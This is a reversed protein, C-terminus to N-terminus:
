ATETRSKKKKVNFAIASLAAGLVFGAGGSLALAGGTFDSGTTSVATDDSNFYVYVSTAENNWDYLSSNLNFAADTGFMHIGTEYGAPIQASGTVVKLSSALIPEMLDKKVAYLALWQRGVDGNMDSCIGLNKYMEDKANRNCEVAKYYASQNKLMIKEGKKNFGIIDKEDVMYHPIPTFEVNYYAKMDEWALYTTIGALIIVGIAFGVTLYKCVRTSATMEDIGSGFKISVEERTLEEELVDLPQTNMPYKNLTANLKSLDKANKAWSVASVALAATSVITVSLLTATWVSFMKRDDDTNLLAGARRADTTIAVGGKEYIGRDVGDYISAEEIFEYEAKKYADNETITMAFLEELSVYALGAKQGPTLAAILPYIDETEVEDSPRNFFDLLTGNGYDTDELYSYIGVTRVASMVDIYESVFANYAETYEAFEEENGEYHKLHEVMKRHFELERSLDELNTSELTKVADDYGALSEAFSDWQDLVTQADDDYLKALEKEADTPALGTQDILDDYSNKTFRDLWISDGTDCARVLLNAISLTAKGNCQALITILDAHEKKEEASFSNYKEDGTEFKTESLFLEGLGKGTDDDIFKNLVGHVYKARVDGNKYNKRYEKIMDLFEDALPTIQSKIYSDYLAEYEAVDYGGKMNMLALDTIAEDRNKTTKYGLYVVKEGKSGLGGEASQNLDVPNGSDDSLVTYGDLAKVAEDSKKDDDSNWKGMGVKVESIYDPTEAFAHLPIMIVMLVAMFASVAKCIKNSM